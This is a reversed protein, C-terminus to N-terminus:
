LEAVPWVATIHADHVSIFGGIRRHASIVSDYKLCEEKCELKRKMANRIIFKRNFTEDDWNFVTM